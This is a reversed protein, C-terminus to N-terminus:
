YNAGGFDLVVYIRGDWGHAVGIGVHSYEGDVLNWYHPASALFAAHIAEVSWGRGVNEGLIWWRMSAQGDLGWNHALFGGSALEAAWGRAIGTLEGSVALPAVGSAVRLNNTLALFQQEETYGEDARAAPAMGILLAVAFALISRLV